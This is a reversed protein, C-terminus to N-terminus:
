AQQATTNATNAANATRQQALVNARIQNLLTQAQHTQEWIRYSRIEDETLGAKRLAVDSDAFDPDQSSVKTYYDAKSADTSVKTEKWVPTVDDLAQRAKDLSINNGAAVQYTLLRMIQESFLRNQRDATRSLKLEAVGMAEASTPNALNVGFDEPLLGTEAAAQRAITELMASHPEMSAQQVQQLTPINGNRDRTVANIAALSSRWKDKPWKDKDLGLFWIRPAAYYEATAEMRVMTRVGQDTLAMLTRSIRSRGFPRDLEPDYAFYAVPPFGLQNSAVTAHWFGDSLHIVEITKNPLWISVDTPNGNSDKDNIVLLSGIRQNRYDYIAACWEAPHATIGADTATLFSCSHVYASVIAQPVLSTLRDRDFISRVNYTDENPVDLGDLVSLDSLATVAKQPWALMASSMYKIRDPISYGFDKIDEHGAFYISRKANGPYKERWVQWLDDAAQYDASTIEGGQILNSDIRPMNAGTDAVFSDNSHTGFSM